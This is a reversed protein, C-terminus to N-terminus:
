HIPGREEDVEIDIHAPYTPNDHYALLAEYCRRMAETSEFADSPVYFDGRGIAKIIIWDGEHEIANVGIWSFYLHSRIDWWHIGEHDFRIWQEGAFAKDGRLKKELKGVVPLVVIHFFLPSIVMLGFITYFAVNGLDWFILLLAMVVLYTLINLSMGIWYIRRAPFREANLIDDQFKDSVKDSWEFSLDIKDPHETEM